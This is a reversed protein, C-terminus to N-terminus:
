SNKIELYKNEAEILENVAKDYEHQANANIILSNKACRKKYEARQIDRKAKKLQLNKVVKSVRTTQDIPTGLTAILPILEPIGHEPCHNAWQTVQTKASGIRNWVKAETLKTTWALDYSRGCWSRKLFQNYKNRVVYFTLENNTTEIESM